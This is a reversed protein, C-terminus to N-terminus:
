IRGGSSSANNRVRRPLYREDELHDKGRPHCEPSASARLGLSSKGQKCATPAPHSRVCRRSGLRVQMESPVHEPHWCHSGFLPVARSLLPPEPVALYVGAIALSTRADRLARPTRCCGEVQVTGPAKILFATPTIRSTRRQGRDQQASSHAHPINPASEAQKQLNIAQPLLRQHLRHLITRVDLIRIAFQGIRHSAM